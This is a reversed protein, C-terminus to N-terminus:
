SAPTDSVSRIAVSLEQATFPKSLFRDIGLAEPSRGVIAESYGTMLVIRCRSHSERIRAALQM